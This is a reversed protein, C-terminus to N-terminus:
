RRVRKDLTYVQGESLSGLLLFRAGNVKLLLAVPPHLYRLLSSPGQQSLRAVNLLLRLQLAFQLSTKLEDAIIDIPLSSGM